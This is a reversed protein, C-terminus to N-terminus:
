FLIVNSGNIPYYQEVKALVPKGTREVLIDDRQTVNREEDMELAYMSQEVIYFEQENDFMSPEFAVFQKKPIISHIPLAKESVQLHTEHDGLFQFNSLLGALGLTPTYVAQHNELKSKLSDHLATDKLHIYLRYKPRYIYETLTPKPPSGHKRRGLEARLNVGMRRMIVQDGDERTGELKEKIAVSGRLSIGILCGKNAFYRLYENDFKELGLIAGIYGYVAPKTPVLYTVATTTAYIKKFHAFDGWIDFVLVKM